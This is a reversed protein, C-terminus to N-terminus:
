LSIKILQWSAFIVNSSNRLLTHLVFIELMFQLSKGLMM